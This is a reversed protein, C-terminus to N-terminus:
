VLYFNKSQKYIKGRTDFILKSNNKVLSWNIKKHFTTIITCDYKTLNNKTLLKNKMKFKHLKPVFPDHYDVSFNKKILLEIIKIAPSERIDNINEKYSVGVILIKPNVKHKLFPKLKKVIYNPMKANIKGALKIFEANINNKKALWSMYIPDIPICHGGWGPGPYFPMFGFPKTKAANIVDIIDINIKNCILKMENVLAINVARFINEYIKSTEAVEVTPTKVLKLFVNKYLLYILRSCNPTIGSYLKPIKQIPTKDGPSIREPSFGVFFDKGVIKNENELKNCIFKRTTSPYSTSELIILKESINISKIDKIFNNLFSLDPENKRLPTPVCIIFADCKKLDSKKYTFTNKKNFIKIKNKSIENIDKNSNILNTILKKNNDFGYVKFNKNSFLISTPLGVYGQGIVGIVISKDKIKKKLRNYINNINM